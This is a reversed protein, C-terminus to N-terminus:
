PCVGWAALVALFDQIGVGGDGDIDAPCDSALPAPPSCYLMSNGGGDTFTGAIQDSTNDCFGSSIVTPNSGPDSSMAGGTNSATNRIFTCNSVTPTSSVNAVAGGNGNTVLNEIFTCNTLTPSNVGNFIAGGSEFATNGTFLCNTLTLDSGVQNFMAGGRFGATNGSFTCNIMTPSSSPVDNFVAGGSSTATNGSFTCNVVTPDSGVNYMGGGLPANGGTIVFGNLVTNPGENTVCSVVSGSNGGNIITNLVVGADTPNTSRVTIAKGAFNINEFYEGLAVVVVDGDVAVAIAAQITLQDGPVNIVAAHAASTTIVSALVFSLRNLM